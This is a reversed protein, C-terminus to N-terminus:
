LYRFGGEERRGEGSEWPVQSGQGLRRLAQSLPSGVGVQPPWLCHRLPPAPALLLRISYCARPRVGRQAGVMKQTDAQALTELLVLLVLALTAFQGLGM